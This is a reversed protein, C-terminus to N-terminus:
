IRTMQSFSVVDTFQRNGPNHFLKMVNFPKKRNAKKNLTDIRCVEIGTKRNFWDPLLSDPYRQIDINAVM